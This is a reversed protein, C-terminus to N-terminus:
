IRGKRMLSSDSLKIASHRGEKCANCARSMASPQRLVGELEKDKVEAAQKLATIENQRKRSLGKKAGM